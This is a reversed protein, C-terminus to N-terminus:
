NMGRFVERVYDADDPLSTVGLSESKGYCGCNSVVIDDFRNRSTEICCFGASRVPKWGAVDAHNLNDAFVLVSNDMFRVYKM